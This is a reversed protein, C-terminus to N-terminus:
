STYDELLGALTRDDYVPIGEELRRQEEEPLSVVYVDYVEQPSLGDPLFRALKGEWVGLVCLMPGGVSSVSEAGAPDMTGSSLASAEPSSPAPPEEAPTRFVLFLVLVVLLVMGAIAALALPRAANKEM